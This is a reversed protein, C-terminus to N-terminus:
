LGWSFLLLRFGAVSHYHANLDLAVIVSVFREGRPNLKRIAHVTHAVSYVQALQRVRAGWSPRAEVVGWWPRAADIGQLACCLVSICPIAQTPALIFFMVPTYPVGLTERVDIRILLLAGWSPQAADAGGHLTRLLARAHPIGQTPVLILFM